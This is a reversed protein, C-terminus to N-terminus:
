VTFNTAPPVTLIDAYALHIQAPAIGKVMVRGCRSRRAISRM